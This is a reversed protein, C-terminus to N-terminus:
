VEKSLQVIWPKHTARLGCHWALQIQHHWPGSTSVYADAVWLILADWTNLDMCGVAIQQVLAQANYQLKRPTISPRLGQVWMCTLWHHKKIAFLEPLLGLIIPFLNWSKPPWALVAPATGCVAVVLSKPRIINRSRKSTGSFRFSDSFLIRAVTTLPILNEMHCIHNLKKDFGLIHIATAFFISATVQCYPFGNRSCENVCRWRLSVLSFIFYRLVERPPTPQLKPHPLDQAPQQASTM